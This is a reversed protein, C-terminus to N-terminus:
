LPAQDVYRGSTHLGVYNAALYRQAAESRVLARLHARQLRDEFPDELLHLLNTM